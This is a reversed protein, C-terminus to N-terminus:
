ASKRSAVEAAAKRRRILGKLPYWVMGVLALLVAFVVGVIAGLVGVGLGPGVYAQAQPALALLLLLAPFLYTRRM